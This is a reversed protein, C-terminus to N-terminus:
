ETLKRQVFAALSGATALHRASVEDDSVQIGFQNELLREIRVADDRRAAILRRQRGSRRLCAPPPQRAPMAPM